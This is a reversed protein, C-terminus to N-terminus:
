YRAIMREEEYNYWLKRRRWLLLADDYYLLFVPIMCQITAIDNISLLKLKKARMDNVLLLIDSWKRKVNSKMDNKAMRWLMNEEWIDGEYRGEIIMESWKM